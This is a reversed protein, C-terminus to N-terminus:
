CACMFCIIKGDVRRSNVRNTMPPKISSCLMTGEGLFSILDEWYLLNGVFKFDEWSTAVLCLFTGRGRCFIKKTLPSYIGHFILICIYVVLLNNHYPVFFSSNYFNCDSDNKQKLDQSEHESNKVYPTKLDWRFFIVVQLALEQGFNRNLRLGEQIFTRLFPEAVGMPPVFQANTYRLRFESM